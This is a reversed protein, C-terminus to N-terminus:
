IFRSPAFSAFSSPLLFFILLKALKKTLWSHFQPYVPLRPVLKWGAPQLIAKLTQEQLHPYDPNVEDKPSIGGLDRAGADLCALLWNEDKLLNPPIQIAIDAPLIERAKSIVEPLKHPDFAQANFSQQNGPSHPQLIVEQIHQYHQHLESIAALTEWWDNETEGIGLLLGTTFPIQLEGAWQLQQLRLEPIKSPAHRHVTNLLKPTLQELMLGMSVNVYKLKQMEEFSLPGANTHPLFGMKLALECLDYIRQLWAKRRSSHPHVEGSLILIECVNQSQLQQLIGEAEALTLWPSQGPDTRFNCYSCRNFCEYTPVITYAPSYTVINSSSSPM